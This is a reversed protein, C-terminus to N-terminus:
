TCKSVDAFISNKSFIKRFISLTSPRLFISGYPLNLASIERRKKHTYSITAYMCSPLFANFPIILILCHKVIAAYCLTILNQTESVRKVDKGFM